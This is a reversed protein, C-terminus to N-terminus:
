HDAGCVMLLMGRHPDVARDGLRRELHHGSGDDYGAPAPYDGMAGRLLDRGRNGGDPRRCREVAVHRVLMDASCGRASPVVQIRLWFCLGRLAPAHARHRVHQRSQRDATPPAPPLSLVLGRYKRRQGPDVSGVVLGASKVVGPFKVAGAMGFEHVAGCTVSSVNSRLLETVFRPWDRYFYHAAPVQPTIALSLSRTKPRHWHRPDTRSLAECGVREWGPRSSAPKVHRAALPGLAPNPYSHFAGRRPSVCASEHNRSQM